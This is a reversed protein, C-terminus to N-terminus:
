RCSAKATKEKVEALTRENEKRLPGLPYAKGELTLHDGQLLPVRDELLKRAREYYGCRGATSLDGALEFSRADQFLHVGAADRDKSNLSLSKEIYLVAKVVWRERQDPEKQARILYVDAIQQYIAEDSPQNQLSQLGVQVADDFRGQKTYDIIKSGLDHSETQVVSSQNTAHAKVHHNWFIFVLVISATIALVAALRWAYSRRQIMM